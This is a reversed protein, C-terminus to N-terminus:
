RQDVYVEVKTFNGMFCSEIINIRKNDKQLNKEYTAVKCFSHSKATKYGKKFLLAAVDKGSHGDLHIDTYKTAQEVQDVIDNPSLTTEAMIM